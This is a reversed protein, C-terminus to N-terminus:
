FMNSEQIMEIAHLLGWAHGRQYEDSLDTNMTKVHIEDMVTKFENLAHIKAGYYGIAYSCISIVILIIISWLM